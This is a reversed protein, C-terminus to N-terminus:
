YIVEDYHGGQQCTPDVKNEIVAAKPTHGAPIVQGDQKKDGCGLCYVDGSYGDTICTKPKANRTEEAGEHNKSDYGTEIEMISKAGCFSCTQTERILGASHCTAPTITETTKVWTHSDQSKGTSNNFCVDPVTASAASGLGMMLVLAMVAAIAAVMKWGTKMVKREM